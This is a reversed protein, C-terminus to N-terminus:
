VFLSIIKARDELLEEETQGKLIYFGRKMMSRGDIVKELNENCKIRCNWEVVHGHIKKEVEDRSPIHTVVNPLLSFYGIYFMMDDDKIDFECEQGVMFKIYEEVLDIGTVAPLFDSCLNHGSSRPAIEICFFKGGDWIIDANVMCNDYQLVHVIEEIKKHIIAFTNSTQLVSEYGIEQRYPLNTMHKKRILITKYKGDICIGDVGYEQGNIFNECIFEDKEQSVKEWVEGKELEDFIVYVSRSGSGFRPKVVFPFSVDMDEESKVCKCTCDRMGNDKLVNHFLYKDVSNKIAKNSAGKLRFASNVYGVTTLISGLPVPLVFDINERKIIESVKEEDSIDIAFFEDLLEKGMANKNRDLGILYIGMEKAKQIAHIAESNVGLVIGKYLKKKM